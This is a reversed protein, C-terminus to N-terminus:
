CWHDKWDYDHLDDVELGVEGHKYLMPDSRDGGEVTEIEILDLRYVCKRISVPYLHHRVEDRWKGEVELSLGYKKTNEIAYQGVIHEEGAKHYEDGVLITAIYRTLTENEQM